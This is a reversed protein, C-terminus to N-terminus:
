RTFGISKLWRSIPTDPFLSILLLVVLVAVYILVIRTERRIRDRVEQPPEGRGHKVM